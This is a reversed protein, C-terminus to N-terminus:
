KNTQCRLHWVLPSHSTLWNTVATRYESTLVDDKTLSRV